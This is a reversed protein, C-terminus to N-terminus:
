NRVAADCPTVAYFEADDRKDKSISLDLWEGRLLGLQRYIKELASRNETDLNKLAEHTRLSQSNNSVIERLRQVIESNAQCAFTSSCDRAMDVLTWGMGALSWDLGSDSNQRVPRLKFRDKAKIMNAAIQNLIRSRLGELDLQMLTNQAELLTSYCSFSFESERGARQSWVTSFTLDMIMHDIENYKPFVKNRDRFLDPRCKGFIRAEASRAGQSRVFSESRSFRRQIVFRLNRLHEENLKQLEKRFTELRITDAETKYAELFKNIEPIERALGAIETGTKYSLSDLQDFTAETETELQTQKSIIKQCQNKIEDSRDKANSSAADVSVLSLLTIMAVGVSFMRNPIRNM